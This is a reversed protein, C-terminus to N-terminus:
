DLPHSYPVLEEQREGARACIQQSRETEQQCDGAREHLTEKTRRKRRVQLSSREDSQTVEGAVRGKSRHGAASTGLQKVHGVQYFLSVQDNSVEEIPLKLLEM